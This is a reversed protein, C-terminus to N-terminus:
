EDLEAPTIGTRDDDGVLLINQDAGDLDHRLHGASPKAIADVTTVQSIFTRYSAWAYGSGLLVAFSMLAAIIRGGLALGCWLDSRRRLSGDRRLRRRGARVTQAGRVGSVRSRRPGRPDLGAPLVADRAPDRSGEDDAV